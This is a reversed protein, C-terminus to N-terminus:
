NAHDVENPNLRQSEAPRTIVRYSVNRSMGNVNRCYTEAEAAAHGSAEIEDDSDEHVIKGDICDPCESARWGRADEPVPGPAERTGNIRTGIEGSGNCRECKIIIMSM